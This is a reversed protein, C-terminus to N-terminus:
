TAGGDEGLLVRAGPGMAAAQDGPNFLACRRLSLCGCQICGTLKTQLRELEDIRASLRAQWSGSLRVWDARTASRGEPLTALAAAVEDLKLGLRQAARVFAVRRLMARLYRRQGGSTREAAILGRSEYFRLASPAVGSRAALEGITLRDLPMALPM